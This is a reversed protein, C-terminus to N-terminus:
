SRKLRNRGFEFHGFTVEKGTKKKKQAESSQSKAYSATKARSAGCWSNEFLTPLLGFHSVTAEPSRCLPADLPSVARSAKERTLQRMRPSIRRLEATVIEFWDKFWVPPIRGTRVDHIKDPM